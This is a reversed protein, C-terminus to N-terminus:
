KIEWIDKCNKCKVKKGRVTVEKSSRHKQKCKKCQIKVAKQVVKKKPKDSKLFSLIVKEVAVPLDKYYSLEKFFLKETDIVDKLGYPVMKKQASVKGQIIDVWDQFVMKIKGGLGQQESRYDLKHSAARVSKRSLKLIDISPIYSVPTLHREKAVENLVKMDFSDLNQGIILDAQSLINSNFEETMSSDDFDRSDKFQDGIKDWELYKAKKEHLWKYQITIVKNPVLVQGHPISVKSGIYFSLVTMPATETDLVLVKM